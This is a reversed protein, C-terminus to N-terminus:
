ELDIQNLVDIITTLSIKYDEHLQLNLNKSILADIINLENNFGNFSISNLNNRISVLESLKM